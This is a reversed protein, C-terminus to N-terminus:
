DLCCSVLEEIFSDTRPLLLFIFQDFMGCLNSAGPFLHMRRLCPGQSCLLVAQYGKQM